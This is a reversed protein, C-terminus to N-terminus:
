SGAETEASYRGTVSIVDGSQMEVVVAEGSLTVTNVSASPGWEFHRTATLATVDVVRLRFSPNNGTRLHFTVEGSEWALDLRVLTADHLASTDLQDPM